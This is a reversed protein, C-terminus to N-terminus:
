DQLCFTVPLLGPSPEPGFDGLLGGYPDYIQFTVEGPYSDGTYNWTLSGTGVPVDVYETGSSYPGLGTVWYDPLTVYSIVGDMDVEIGDSQWGDGYSDQMDVQYSGPEPTCTLLGNYQYPSDIFGGTISSGASQAGFVRGDTLVVRLEFIYLDGAFYDDSSLGMAATSEGFTATITARPLGHPGPTFESAHISKVFADNAVTTGNDPTLDQLSVYVDVSQLLGGGQEDQEEVDVSFTSSDDSSNLVSNNVALTRLAAGFENDLVVDIANNSEKCSNFSFAVFFALLFKFLNKM